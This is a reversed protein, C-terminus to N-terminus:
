RRGQNRLRNLQVWATRPLAMGPPHTGTDPIFTRLRATNHLWEEHWRHDAWLAASRNNNHWNFQHTTTRRTCIPTCSQSATCEWETSLHASLPAPTWAGHCPTSSATHNRQSSAWCTPHRRAYSPQSSTCSARIWGCNALNRQHCAWHPPHSCQPVLCSRLVRNNLPGPSSHSNAVSNSWCELWTTVLPAFGGRSFNKCGQLFTNSM